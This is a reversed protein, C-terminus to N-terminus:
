SEKKFNVAIIGCIGGIITGFIIDNLLTKSIEFTFNDLVSFVLFSFVTFLLGIMMGTIFGLEKTKKMGVFVGFLISLGKIVQVVALIAGDSVAVFRLFFAFILIFILSACLGFLAGKIVILGLNSKAKIDEM